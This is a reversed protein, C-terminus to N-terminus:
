GDIEVKHKVTIFRIKHQEILKKTQVQSKGLRSTGTKVEIFDLSDGKLGIFDIFDGVPILRDYEALLQMYTTLEGIKGKKASIQGNLNRIMRDPLQNLSNIDRALNSIIPTIDVVPEVKPRTYYIVGALVLLAVIILVDLM